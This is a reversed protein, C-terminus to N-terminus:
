DNMQVNQRNSWEAPNTNDPILDRIIQLFHKEKRELYEISRKTEALQTLAIAKQKVIIEYREQVTSVGEMSLDVFRKIDKISMSCKKGFKAASLWNLSEDDFLRNNNIDRQVNPVLGNDTYYRVTHETLDVIKAVERVTYM